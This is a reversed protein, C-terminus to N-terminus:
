LKKKIPELNKESLWIRLQTFFRKYNERVELYLGGSTEVIKKRHLQRPSLKNNGVKTEIAVYVPIVPYNNSGKQRCPIFCSIDELGVYSMGTGHNKWTQSSPYKKLIAKRLKLTLTSEKM